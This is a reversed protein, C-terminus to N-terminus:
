LELRMSVSGPRLGISPTSAAEARARRYDLYSFVAAGVLAAGGLGFLINAALADRRGTDRYDQMQLIEPYTIGQASDLHDQQAKMHAAFAAGMALCLLGAGGVVWTPARISGLYSVQQPPVPTM